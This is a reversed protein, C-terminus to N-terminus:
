PLAFPFGQLVFCGISHELYSELARVTTPCAVTGCVHPLSIVDLCVVTPEPFRSPAVQWKEDIPTFKLRRKPKLANHM